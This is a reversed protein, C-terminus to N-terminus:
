GPFMGKLILLIPSFHYLGKGLTGQWCTKLMLMCMTPHNHVTNLLFCPALWPQSWKLCYCLRIFIYLGFACVEGISYPSPRHFSLSHNCIAPMNADLGGRQSNQNTIIQLTPFNGWQINFYISSDLQVKVAFVSITVIKCSPTRVPRKQLPFWVEGKTKTLARFYLVTLQFFWDKVILLTFETPQIKMLDRGHHFPLWDQKEDHLYSWNEWKDLLFSVIFFRRRKSRILIWLM